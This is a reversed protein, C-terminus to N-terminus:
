RDRPDNKQKKSGKSPHGEKHEFHKVKKNKFKSDNNLDFRTLQAENRKYNKPYKVRHSNHYVYPNPGVDFLSVKYCKKLNHKAYNKPLKKNRVWGNKHFYIYMKSPIDYYVDLEPIYYYRSEPIYEAPAWEPLANINITVQALTSNSVFIFFLTTLIFTLKIKM